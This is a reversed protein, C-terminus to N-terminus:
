RCSDEQPDSIHVESANSFILPQPENSLVERVVLERHVALGKLTETTDRHLIRYMM